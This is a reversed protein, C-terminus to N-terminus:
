VGRAVYRKRAASEQLLWDEVIQQEPFTGKRQPKLLFYGSATRVNLDEIPQVLQGSDLHMDVLHRWGLMIGMGDLAAQVALPYTNFQAARRPNFDNVGVEEMWTRWNSWEAHSSTVEILDLDSYNSLAAAGPNGALFQPSCVPFITEGFLMTADFGTWSGEGRLIALDVTEALCEEDSDSALLMIRVGSNARNFDQLRPMLWLAAVSNTAALTVPKQHRDGLLDKSAGRLLELSQRVTRLLQHGQPTLAISKHSRVFLLIEYHEELLRVKRSIATESVNMQRSAAAFSGAEATAEFALFYDLRPLLNRYDM